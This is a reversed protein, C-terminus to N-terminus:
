ESKYPTHLKALPMTYPKTAYSPKKVILPREQIHKYGCECKFGILKNDRKISYWKKAKCRASQKHIKWLIKAESLTIPHYHKAATFYWITYVAFCTWVALPLIELM